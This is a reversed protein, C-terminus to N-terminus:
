VGSCAVFLLRLLVAPRSTDILAAARGAMRTQRRHHLGTADEVGARHKGQWNHQTITFCILCKPQRFETKFILPTDITKPQQDWKGCGCGWEAIVMWGDAPGRRCVYVCLAASKITIRPSRPQKKTIFIFQNFIIKSVSDSLTLLHFYECKPFPSSINDRTYKVPGGALIVLKCKLCAKRAGMGMCQKSQWAKM